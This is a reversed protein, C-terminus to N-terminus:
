SAERESVTRAGRCVEQKGPTSLLCGARQDIAESAFSVRVRAGPPCMSKTVVRLGRSSVNEVFVREKGSTKGVHSLEVALEIPTRKESRCDAYVHKGLRKAFTCM